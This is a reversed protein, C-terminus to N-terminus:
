AEIMRSREALFSRAITERIPPISTSSIASDSGSAITLRWMSGPSPQGPAPAALDRVLGPDVVVDGVLDGLHEHLEGVDGDGLVRRQELDVRQDDGVSRLTTASSEFAM